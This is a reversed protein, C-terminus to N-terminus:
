KYSKRASKSFQTSEKEEVDRIPKTDEDDFVFEKAHGSQVIEKFGPDSPKIESGSLYKRGNHEVNKNMLYKKM